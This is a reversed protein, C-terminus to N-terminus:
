NILKCAVEDLATLVLYDASKDKMKKQMLKIKDPWSCGLFSLFGFFIFRTYIWFVMLIETQTAVM